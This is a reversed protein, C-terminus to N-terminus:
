ILALPELFKSRSRILVGVKALMGASSLMNGPMHSESTGTTTKDMSGHMLQVSRYPFNRGHEFHRRIDDAVQKVFFGGSKIGPQDPRCKFIDAARQEIINCLAREATDACDFAGRLADLHIFFGADPDIIGKGTNKAPDTCIDAGCFRKVLM